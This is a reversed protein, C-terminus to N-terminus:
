DRKYTTVTRASPQYLILWIVKVIVWALLTYVVIAILAPIEVVVSGVTPTSTLGMFPLMFPQTVASIFEAFGSNPNAGVLKLLFRLAILGNLVGFILWVFQASRAIHGQREAAVDQVVRQSQESDWSDIV